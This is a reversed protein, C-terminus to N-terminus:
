DDSSPYANRCSRAGARRAAVCEDWCVSRENLWFTQCAHDTLRCADYQPDTRAKCEKRCRSYRGNNIRLCSQRAERNDSTAIRDLGSLDTENDIQATNGPLSMIMRLIDTEAEPRNLVCTGASSCKDTDPQTPCECVENWECEGDNWCEARVYNFSFLLVSLAVSSGVVATIMLKKM